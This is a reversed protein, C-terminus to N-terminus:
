IIVSIIPKGPDKLSHESPERRLNLLLGIEHKTYTNFLWQWPHCGLELKYINNNNNNSKISSRSVSCVCQLRPTEVYGVIFSRFLFFVNVGLEIPLNRFFYLEIPINWFTDNLLCIGFFYLETPV